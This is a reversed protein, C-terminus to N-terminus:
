GQSQSLDIRRIRQLMPPRHAVPWAGLYVAASGSAMRLPMCRCLSLIAPLRGGTGSASPRVPHFLRTQIPISRRRTGIGILVWSGGGAWEDRTPGTGCHGGQWRGHDFHQMDGHWGDHPSWGGHGDAFHGGPSGGVHGGGPRPDAAEALPAMLLLLACVLATLLSKSKMSGSWSGLDDPDRRRVAARPRIGGPALAAARGDRRESKPWASAFDPRAPADRQHRALHWAGASRGCQVCVRLARGLGCCLPL